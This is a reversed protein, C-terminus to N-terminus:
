YTKEITMTPYELGGGINGTVVVKYTGTSVSQSGSAVATKGNEASGSWSTVENWKTGNKKYLKVTISSSQNGSPTVTGSCNAKGGSFTLNGTLLSTHTYDTTMAFPAASVEHALAPSTTGLLLFFGVVFSLLRKM